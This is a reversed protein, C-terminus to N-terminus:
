SKQPSATRNMPPPQHEKQLSTALRRNGHEKLAGIESRWWLMGMMLNWLSFTMSSGSAQYIPISKVLVNEGPLYKDVYTQECLTKLDNITFVDAAKDRYLRDNTHGAIMFSIHVHDVKGRSVMEMALSFFTGTRTPAPLMTWSSPWVTWGHVNSHSCTGTSHFQTTLTKPVEDFIYVTSKEVSHDVLGKPSLINFRAAKNM